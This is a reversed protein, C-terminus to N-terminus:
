RDYTSLQKAALTLVFVGDDRQWERVVRLDGDDTKFFDRTAETKDTVFALGRSSLIKEADALTRGITLLREVVFKSESEESIEQTGRNDEFRVGYRTM